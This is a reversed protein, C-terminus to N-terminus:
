AHAAGHPGHAAPRRAAKAGTSRSHRCRLANWASAAYSRIFRARLAAAQRRVALEDFDTVSRTSKPLLM